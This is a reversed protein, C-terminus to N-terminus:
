IHGSVLLALLEQGKDGTKGARVRWLNLPLALVIDGPTESMTATVRECELLLEFDEFTRQRNATLSVHDRRLLHCGPQLRNLLARDWGRGSGVLRLEGLEFRPKSRSSSSM